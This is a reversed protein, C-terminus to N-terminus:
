RRRRRLTGYTEIAVYAVFCIMLGGIFYTYFSRVYYMGKSSEPTAEVHIRAGALSERAGPHCTGCTKGLNDPHISSAPDSSPRIDHIGHCSACNAVAAEGYRNVVGHYSDLYTAFRRMPLEYKGSIREEEHCAACTTPINRPAVSSAPDSPAAITHEGHCDTCVPAEQIGSSVAQGHISEQYTAAIDAHCRGCLKPINPRHVPSRAADAAKIAHTGHCYVCIATADEGATQRLGHISQTYNAAEDSHCAGCDVPQLREPHPVSEIDIHCEVCPIDAHMSGALAQRNVFLSLVGNERTTSLEPDGHCDLCAQDSIAATEASSMGCFVAFTFGLLLGATRKKNEM